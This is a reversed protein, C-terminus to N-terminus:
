NIRTFRPLRYKIEEMKERLERRDRVHVQKSLSCVTVVRQVNTKHEECTKGILTLVSKKCEPHNQLCLCVMQQGNRTPSEERSRAASSRLRMDPDADFRIQSRALTTPSTSRRALPTPSTSRDNRFSKRLRMDPIPAPVLDPSRRV